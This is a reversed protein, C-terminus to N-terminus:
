VAKSFFNKRIQEGRACTCAVFYGDQKEATTYYGKGYCKECSGFAKITERIKLMAEAFLLLAAGREKCKGKPFQADLVDELDEKIIGELSM